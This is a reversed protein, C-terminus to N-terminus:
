VNAKEKPPKAWDPLRSLDPEPEPIGRLRRLEEDSALGLAAFRLRPSISEGLDILAYTACDVIDDHKGPFVAFEEIVDDTYPAGEPLYCSGSELTPAISAARMEKSGQPSIPVVGPLRKSITEIVAAGHAAKEIAVKAFRFERAMTEIATISEEVGARKRWHRLLFRQAGRAGWAQVVAYDGTKSGFTLDATIVIRDAREPLAIAPEDSCGPPRRAADTGPVRYFRWWRRPFMSASDDTPNQLYQAAYSASGLQARLGDLKARTLIGPFTLEGEPTEAPLSLHTWGDPQERLIHAHLDDSHLRQGVVVLAGTGDLRTSLAETFWRHTQERTAKSYVDAANIPDDVVALTGRLGTLAGGVGVSMRRGDRTTAFHDARNEDSRLTVEPFRRRYWDSEVLRRCRLSDRSAINHAHSAYIMRTGPSRAWTWAPFLVATITSKGTGPPDAILLRSVEGDGVRQLHDLLALLSPGEVLPVSEVQSWAMRVFDTFSARAVSAELRAIDAGTLRPVAPLPLATPASV